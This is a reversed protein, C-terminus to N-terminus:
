YEIFRLDAKGYLFYFGVVFIGSIGLILGARKVERVFKGRDYLICLYEVALAGFFLVFSLKTLLGAIIVAALPLIFKKDGDKVTRIYFYYTLLVFFPLVAGDVDLMLNAILGYVSLVYLGVALYAIKKNGTIKRSLTYILFLNLIGFIFPLMRLNDYGFVKGSLSLIGQMIPPHPSDVKGFEATYVQSVWRYEDQHYLQDLGLFRTAIFLLVLLLLGYNSRLAKIM